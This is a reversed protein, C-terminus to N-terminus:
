KDGTAGNEEVDRQCSTCCRIPDVLLYEAIIEIIQDAVEEPTETGDLDIYRLYMSSLTAAYNLHDVYTQRLHRVSELTHNNEGERNREKIRALCVEPQTDLYIIIDNPVGHDDIVQYERKFYEYAFKSLRGELYANKSFVIPAEKSRETLFLTMGGPHGLGDDSMLAHSLCKKIHFQMALFDGPDSGLKYGEVLPSLASDPLYLFKSVPEEMVCTNNLLYRYFDCEPDRLHMARVRRRISALASSKGAGIPGEIAIRINNIQHFM